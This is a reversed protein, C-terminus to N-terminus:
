IVIDNIYDSNKIDYRLITWIDISFLFNKCSCFILCLNVFLIFEGTFFDVNRFIWGMTSYCLTFDPHCALELYETERTLSVCNKLAARNVAASLAGKEPRMAWRSWRLKWSRRSCVSGKSRRASEPSLTSGFAGALLVTKIEGLPAAM